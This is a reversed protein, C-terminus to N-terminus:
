CRQNYSFHLDFSCHPIVECWDSHGDDVFRCVIFAPFPTSFFSAELLAPPFTFQNFWQPSCYPPEKIFQFQFQWIVWCDWQQTNAWLLGYDLFICASWHESCRWKCCWSMSAVQIDMLLPISLSSTTCIFMLYPIYGNFIGNTVFHIPRSITKSLLSLFVFTVHYPKCIFDLSPVFSCTHEDKAFAGFNCSAASCGDVPFHQQWWFIIGCMWPCLFLKLFATSPACDCKFDFRM